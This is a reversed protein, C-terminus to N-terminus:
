CRALDGQQASAVLPISVGVCFASFTNLKM